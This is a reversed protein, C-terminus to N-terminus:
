SYGGKTQSSFVILTKITEGLESECSHRTLL